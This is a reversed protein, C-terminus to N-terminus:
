TSKVGFGNASYDFTREIPNDGNDYFNITFGSVSKSSVTFYDGTQMNQGAIVVSKLTNFDPSFTISLGGIGCVKDKESVIRDPMDIEVSLATVVPSIGTQNSTLHLKFEFARAKYDGIVFPRWDTWSAGSASPDDETTRVYLICTWNTIDNGDWNEINDVNAWTDVNNEFDAGYVEMNSTLRSTYIAGLDVTNSFYYTGTAAFGGEGIDWNDILDVNAWDDVSDSGTLQLETGSVNVNVKSGPFTPSETITQVLNLLNINGVQSVILNANESEVSSSDIAKILYTGVMSFVEVSTADKSVRPILKQSGEWTAGSTSPSFRIEYYQLDLDTVSDWSLQATGDVVNINFNEVDAPPDLLGNVDFTGVLYDSPRRFSDLATVRFTYEGPETDFLDATNVGHVTGMNDYYTNDPRKVEIQYFQVRPDNSPTWSVTIASKISAGAQYLYENINIDTPPEIKGTKDISYDPVEIHLDSEVADYLDPSYQVAFVEYENKDNETVSIVRFQVPSVDSSTIGWMAGVIPVKSFASDVTIINTTGPSNTITRDEVKVKGDEYVPCSLTYTKGSEFTIEDDLTFALDSETV